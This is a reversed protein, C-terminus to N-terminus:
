KENLPQRTDFNLLTPENTNKDQSLIALSTKDGTKIKVEHSQWDIARYPAGKSNPKIGMDIIEIDSGYKQAVNHHLIELNKENDISYSLAFGVFLGIVGCIGSAFITPPIRDKVRFIACVLAALGTGLASAFFLSILGVIGNYSEDLHIYPEFEM